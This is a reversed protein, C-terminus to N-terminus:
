FLKPKTSKKPRYHSLAGQLTRGTGSVEYMDLLCVVLRWDSCVWDVAESGHESNPRSTPPHVLAAIKARADPTLTPAAGQTARHALGWSLALKRWMAPIYVAKYWIQSVTTLDLLDATGLVGCSLIQIVVEAPCVSLFDVKPDKLGTRTPEDFQSRSEITM